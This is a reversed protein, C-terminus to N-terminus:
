GTVVKRSHAQLCAKILLYYANGNAPGCAIARIFEPCAKDPMAHELYYLGRMYYTNYRFLPLVRKLEPVEEAMATYHKLFALRADQFPLGASYNRDHRVWQQVVGPEYRLKVGSAFLRTFFEADDLGSLDPDESFRGVEEYVNKRLMLTQMSVLASGRAMRLLCEEGTAQRSTFRDIPEGGDTVREYDSYVVETAPEANFVAVQRCLRGPLMIDDQDLFCLLGARSEAAGRNLAAGKGAHPIRYFRIREDRFSQVIEKPSLSSGDDVVVLEWFVGAQATVSEIARRLWREGEYCPLIVSVQPGTV